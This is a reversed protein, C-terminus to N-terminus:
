RVKGVKYFLLSLLASIMKDVVNEVFGGFNNAFTLNHFAVYIGQFVVNASPREPKVSFVLDAIANGLFGNIIASFLGAWLFSEISYGHPKKGHFRKAKDDNITSSDEYIFVLAAIIATSIHCVSFLLTSHTSISLVLNSLFACIVGPVLGCLAVVGITLLSDLYLPFSIHEALKSGAFNVAVAIICILFIYAIRKHTFREGEEMNIGFLAQNININM